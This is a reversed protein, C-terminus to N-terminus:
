QRYGLEGDQEFRYERKGSQRATNEWRIYLMNAAVGILTLAIAGLNISHGTTYNPADDSLYTFTAVFAGCNGIAVQFGVGTAKTYHPALNNSLWALILPSCPFAGVAIFYTGAYRVANSDSALQMIYGIAAFAFLGFIMPGRMKIKDSIFSTLLVALFALFNPPVTFLQATVADYGMGKIITPLFLSYSYIPVLILFFNFSMLLTNVNLIAFKVQAATDAERIRSSRIVLSVAQWNFKEEEVHEHSTAGHLDAQLRAAAFKQEEPTLYKATSPTNPLFFFAVGAM